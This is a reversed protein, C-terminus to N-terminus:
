NAVNSYTAQGLKQVLERVKVSLIKLGRKKRHINSENEDEDSESEQNESKKATNAQRKAQSM